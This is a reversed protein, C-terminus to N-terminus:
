RDSSLVRLAERLGEELDLTALNPISRVATAAESNSYGLATLAALLQGTNGSGPIPVGGAELQGVKGKLELAIRAATRKGIGSVSSLRAIDDSAIATALDDISMASLLALASRPGVSTVTLLLQFMRLEPRSSFGYLTAGDERLQLHTHLSVPAGPTSAASLTASSAFVQYIVGGVNVLLHDSASEEVVGRLGAIM